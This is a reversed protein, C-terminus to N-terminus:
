PFSALFKDSIEMLFSLHETEIKNNNKLAANMRM